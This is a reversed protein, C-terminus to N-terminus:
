QECAKQEYQIAKDRAALGAKYHRLAVKEPSAPASGGAHNEGGGGSAGGAAHSTAALAACAGTIAAILLWHQTRRTM